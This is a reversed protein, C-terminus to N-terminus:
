GLCINAMCTLAARRLEMDPQSPDSYLRLVGGDGLLESLHRNCRPGNGYILTSLAQLVESHTWPSCVGLARVVYCVCVDLTQEDVIVQLQNLLHHTLQCLKIVLHEQSLPVLRTVHILLACVEEPPINYNSSYNESILQDFLLNLQTKLSAPDGARLSRLKSAYHSFQAAVSGIEERVEPALPTFPVADPSLTVSLGDNIGALSSSMPPSSGPPLTARAAM